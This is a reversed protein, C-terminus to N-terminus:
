DGDKAMLAEIADVIKFARRNGSTSGYNSHSLAARAAEALAANRIEKRTM